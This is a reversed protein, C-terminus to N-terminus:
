RRNGKKNRFYDADPCTAWHSKGSEEEFIHYKGAADQAWVIDVGCNPGNCKAYRIPFYEHDGILFVSRRDNM